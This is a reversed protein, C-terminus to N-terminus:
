HPCRDVAQRIRQSHRHPDRPTSWVSLSCGGRQGHPCRLIGWAHAGGRVVVWGQSEAHAIAAAIEKSPHRKRAM